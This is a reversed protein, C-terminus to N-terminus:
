TKAERLEVKWGIMVEEFTQFKGRCILSGCRMSAVDILLIGGEECVVQGVVGLSGAELRADKEILLELCSIAGVTVAPGAPIIVKGDFIILEETSGTLILEKM